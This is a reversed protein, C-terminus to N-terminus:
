KEAVCHVIALREGPKEAGLFKPDLEPQLVGLTEEIGQTKWPAANGLVGGVNGPFDDVDGARVPFAGDAGHDIGNAAGSAM